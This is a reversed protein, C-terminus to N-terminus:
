DVKHLVRVDCPADRVLTANAGLFTAFRGRLGVREAIVITDVAYFTAGTVIAAVHSRAQVRVCRLTGGFHATRAILERAHMLWVEARCTISWVDGASADVAVGRPVVVPALVILEDLPMLIRCAEHLATCALPSDDYPVLIRM